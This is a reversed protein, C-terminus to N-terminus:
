CAPYGSLPGSSSCVSVRGIRSVSVRTRYGKPSSLEIVRDTGGEVLGRFSFVILEPTSGTPATMTCATCETNSVIRAVDQGGDNLVCTSADTCAADGNAAGVFWSTGPSVTVAVSRPLTVGSHKLAESRALHILDAIAETQGALRRREIMDSMSPGALTALIAVVTVTVMLEILTFGEQRLAARM